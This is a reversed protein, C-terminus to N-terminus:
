GPKHCLYAQFHLRTLTVAGDIEFMEYFFFYPLSTSVTLGREALLPMITADPHLIMRQGSGTAIGQRAAPNEPSLIRAVDFYFAGGPRLIRAAEDFVVGLDPIFHLVGNCIIHDASGTGIPYPARNLDHLHLAECVGKAACAELLGASADLGTITCGAKRFLAAGLGTGVGFDVIRQGKALHPYVLGFSVQPGLWGSKAQADYDAFDDYFRIVQTTAPDSPSQPLAPRESRFWDRLRRM